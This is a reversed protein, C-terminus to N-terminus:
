LYNQFIDIYIDNKFTCHMIVQFRYSPVKVEFRLKKNDNFGYIDSNFVSGNYYVILTDKLISLYFKANSEPLIRDPLKTDMSLWNNEYKINKVVKSGLTSFNGVLFVNDSIKDTYRTNFQCDSVCPIEVLKYNDVM